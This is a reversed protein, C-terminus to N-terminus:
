APVAGSAIPQATPAASGGAPELTVLVDASVTRTDDGGSALVGGAIAVADFTAGLDVFFPDDIPGVFMKGGGPLSRNALGAQTADELSAQYVRDNGAPPFGTTLTAFGGISAVVAMAAVGGLLKRM